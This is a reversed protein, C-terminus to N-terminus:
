ASSEAEAIRFQVLILSNDDKLTKRGVFVVLLGFTLNGKATPVERLILDISAGEAM